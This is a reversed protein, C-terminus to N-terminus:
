PLLLVAAGALLGAAMVPLTMLALKRGGILAVLFGKVLSNSLAALFIGQVAVQAQLEGKASRALSLTIADVDAMGSLSQGWQHFRKDNDNTQSKCVDGIWERTYDGKTFWLLPKWFTNVKRPFVQM